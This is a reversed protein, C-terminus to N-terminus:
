DEACRLRVAVKPARVPDIGAIRARVADAVQDHLSSPNRFRTVARVVARPRLRGRLRIRVDTIGPVAFVATGLAVRLGSRTVGAIFRPDDGSLAVTRGRGPLASALVLVLGALALGASAGLAAPDSWRTARMLRVAHEIEAPPLAPHGLRASAIQVSVLAGAATVPLAVAFVPLVRRSRFARVAARCGSDMTM